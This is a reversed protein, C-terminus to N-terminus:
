RRSATSATRQHQEPGLVDAAVDLGAARLAVVPLARGREDEGRRAPARALAVARRQDVLAVAVVVEHDGRLAAGVLRRGPIEVELGIRLDLDLDLAVAEGGARAGRRRLLLALQPRDHGGGPGGVVVVLALRGPVDGDDHEFARRLGLSAAMSVGCSRIRPWSSCEIASTAHVSTLPRAADTASSSSSLPSRTKTAAAPSFAPSTSPARNGHVAPTAPCTSLAPSGTRIRSRELSGPNARSM